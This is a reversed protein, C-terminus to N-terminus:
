IVEYVFPHRRRKLAALLDQENDPLAWGCVVLRAIFRIEILPFLRSYARHKWHFGSQRVLCCRNFHCKKNNLSVMQLIRRLMTVVRQGPVFGKNIQWFFVFSVYRCSSCRVQSLFCVRIPPDSLPQNFLTAIAFFKYIVYNSYM